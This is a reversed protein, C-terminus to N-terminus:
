ITEAARAAVVELLLRVGAAFEHQTTLLSVVLWGPLGFFRGPHVLVGRELLRLAMEEDTELSPVRLIAYWGAEVRLRSVWRTAQRALLDDMTALNQRIRAAIEKQIAKDQRLWLPLAVQVPTSVSLFTDALVELRELAVNRDTTVENEEEGAVAIWALKMQPLALIKSIGSVVFVLADTPRALFSIADQDALDDVVDNAVDILPYDLFVEDVILAIEHRRCIDFIAEAEAQSTYHGTPNNPHVLLLARTRESIAAELMALDLQWREDFVLPTQVLRVCEADALYDFLPYCPAPALVEDGPDCLLRFLYSYAESTGTTLVLRDADVRVGRAAYYGAIAERASRRGRPDPDYEQAEAGTMAQLLEGPM